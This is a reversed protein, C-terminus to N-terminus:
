RRGDMIREILMNSLRKDFESKDKLYRQFEESTMLGTVM